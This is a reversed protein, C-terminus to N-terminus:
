AKSKKAAAWRLYGEMFKQLDGDLVAQVNGNEVNTRHDKVLTYPQLTYTRIQSGFAIEGKEGYLKAMEADREMEKRQALRGRLIKMAQAKNKHQSRENQCQVVIGTPVHTIRVASDTTNVHQGGAGGARYFDIRLEKENIEIEADDEFEPVVDVAAFSTQRKGASNFPSIRILRHVGAETRLWGYPKDGVFRLTGSKIGAEDDDDREIIEVKANMRDGWRAFMRFLMGAFDSADTGGTGAQITLLAARKDHPGSFMTQLELTDYRAELDPLLTLLEAAQEADGEEEAMEAFDQLDSIERDIGSISDVTAKASKLEQIRKQARDNDDWFDTAGM